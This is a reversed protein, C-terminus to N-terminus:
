TWGKLESSIGSVIKAMIQMDQEDDGTLSILRPTTELRRGLEIVANNLNHNLTEPRSTTQYMKATWYLIRSKTM